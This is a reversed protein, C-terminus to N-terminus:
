YQFLRPCIGPFFSCSFSLKRWNALQFLSTVMQTCANIFYTLFATCGKLCAFVVSCIDCFMGQQLSLLVLPWPTMQGKRGGGHVQCLPNKDKDLLQRAPQLSHQANHICNDGRPQATRKNCLRVWLAPCSICATASCSSAWTENYITSPIPLSSFLCAVNLSQVTVLCDPTLSQFLRSWTRSLFLAWGRRAHDM